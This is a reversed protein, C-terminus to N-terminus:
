VKELAVACVKFEPIKAVPDLKDNTLLNVAAEKFHFPMFVVGPAVMDGVLAKAQLEGRRSRLRVVEGESMGLRRADETSIEVFPEGAVREICQAKRTM